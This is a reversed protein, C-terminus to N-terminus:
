QPKIGAVKVVREAAARDAELFKAFEGASGFAPELGRSVLHKERWEADAAVGAIERNLRTLIDLPTGAPAFLGFYSRTIDGRYGAESITQVTPLLPSPRVSDVLLAKAKGDQLQGLVNGVGLFIIPTEGSLMRTVTEGGGKFAVRVIDGNTEQSLWDLFLAHSAAPATYSLTRPKSRALERLEAFTNVRLDSNAVLVQTVFFLNTVPAFDKAPDFGINHFMFQNYTLAEGPLACLTYGDQPAEACARAAINFNGGPRSEVILPQGLRKRLEEGLARVFIDSIGGPGSAGIVRILKNPYGQAACPAASAVMLFAFVSYWFRSM